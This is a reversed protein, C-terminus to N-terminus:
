RSLWSIAECRELQPHIRENFYLLAVVATSRGRIFLFITRDLPQMRTHEKTNQRHSSLAVAKCSSSGAEIKGSTCRLLGSWKGAGEFGALSDM